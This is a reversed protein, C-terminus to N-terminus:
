GDVFRLGDEVVRVEAVEGTLRLVADDRAPLLGVAAVLGTLPALLPVVLLAVRGALNALLFVLPACLALLALRYGTPVERWLAVVVLLGVCWLVCALRTRRRQERIPRRLVLRDREDWTM